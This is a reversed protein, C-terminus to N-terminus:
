SQILFFAELSPTVLATDIFYFKAGQHKLQPIVLNFGDEVENLSFSPKEVVFLLNDVDVTKNLQQIISLHTAVPTLIFAAAIQVEVKQDTLQQKESHTLLFKDLSSYCQYYGFTGMQQKREDLSLKSAKPDIAIITFHQSLNILLEQYLGVVSSQQEGLGGFVLIIKEM